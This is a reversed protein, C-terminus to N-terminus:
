RSPGRHKELLDKAANLRAALWTSGGRDPHMKQMMRRHADVIDEWTASDDLGLIELAQAETMQTNDPQGTQNTQGTQGAQGRMNRYMRYLGMAQMGRGIWPMFRAAIPLLAGLLAFLPHLRGTVGLYLLLLGTLTALYIAFFQRINLKRKRLFLRMLAYIVFAIVIILILRILTAEKIIHM